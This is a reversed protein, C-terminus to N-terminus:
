NPNENKNIGLYWYFYIRKTKFSFSEDHSAAIRPEVSVTVIPKSPSFPKRSYIVVVIVKWDCVCVFLLKYACFYDFDPRLFPAKLGHIYNQLGKWVSWEYLYIRWYICIDIYLTLLFSLPLSCEWRYVVEKEWTEKDIVKVAQCYIFYKSLSM